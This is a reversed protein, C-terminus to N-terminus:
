SPDATARKWFGKLAPRSNDYWVRYGAVDSPGDRDNSSRVKPHYQLLIRGFYSSELLSLAEAWEWGRVADNLEDSWIM